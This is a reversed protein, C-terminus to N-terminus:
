DYELNLDTINPCGHVIWEYCKVLDRVSSDISFGACSIRRASQSAAAKDRFVRVCCNCYEEIDGTEFMNHMIMKYVTPFAGSKVVVAPTGCAMAEAVTFGFTESGSASVFIDSQAYFSSVKREDLIMGTFIIRNRINKGEGLKSSYVAERGFIEQAQIELQPRIPGDGVIVLTADSLLPNGMAQILFDISKEMALRGAYILIPGSESGVGALQRLDKIIHDTQGIVTKIEKTELSFSPDSVLNINSDQRKFIIPAAKDKLHDFAANPHFVNTDLGSRLLHVRQSYQFVYNDATKSPIGVAEAFFALPIYYILPFLFDILMNFLRSFFSKGDGIYHDRYYELYVHYSIYVKLGRLYMLPILPVFALCLPAVIHCIDYPIPEWVNLLELLLQWPPLIFTRQHNYFPNAISPVVIDCESGAVSYVKVCHGQKRYGNVWNKCRNAIGSVYPPLYETAFLIRLPKGKEILETTDTTALTM